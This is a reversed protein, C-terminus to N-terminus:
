SSLLKRHTHISMLMGFGALLTVASTGGYSFLPLPVGVVPMLGMVMGMNIFVYIFFTLSLAGALLRQFSDHGRLAIFLGRGVIAIYLMLLAIVGIMGLEEALVAFIFDTHSEPLFDLKAQTGNLLGKGFAGGSGIAIKSQTIHYGTGLPDSEPDLFTLVRNRQYEHLRYWLLPAAAMVSALAGFIWRWSLGGLYLAFGGSAIILLATGLDPQVMVLAAPFGIIVLTVLVDRWSPPLPRGHLWAAVMMPMALKMMESPQFRIVGFDLWRQAGKAHDGLLLVLILLVSAIGYFWPAGARYFDPPVQALTIMVVLGLMLRQFQAFPEGTDGGSASYLVSLGMCAVAALLGVLWIDIHMRLLRESWTSAPSHPAPTLATSM